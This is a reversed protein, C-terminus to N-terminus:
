PSPNLFQEIDEKRTEMFFWNVKKCNKDKEIVGIHNFIVNLRAAKM